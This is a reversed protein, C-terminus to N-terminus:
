LLPGDIAYTTGNASFGRFSGDALKLAAFPADLEDPFPGRIVIPPGVRVRLCEICLESNAGGTEAAAATAVVALAILGAALLPAGKM